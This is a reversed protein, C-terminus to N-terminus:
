VSWLIKMAESLGDPRTFIPTPLPMGATPSKEEVPKTIVPVSLALEVTMAGAAVVAIEETRKGCPVAGVDGTFPSIHVVLAPRYTRM